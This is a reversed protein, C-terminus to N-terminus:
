LVLTGGTAAHPPPPLTKIKLAKLVRQAQHSGQTVMRKREGDGLDVEVVRVTRLAELAARASLDLGAAKLKKELARELLFALYAVFIHAEVREKSRHFIPRLNLIDKLHRFAREVESLDKYAQVAEVPTLSHDDTRILYKGELALERKLNTPHEFYRFSGAALEWAYYRHGHNRALIRAAAAGIKAPVRLKKRAVREQLKFLAERTREMSIKRRAEEFAKREESRVVFIRVGAEGSPVEQVETRLPVARERATIGAPCEQWPGTAAEIWRYVPESRRRNLGLLHRHGLAELAQLNEVSVMGRDGVLIVRRLGFRRELERTVEDVTGADRRNGAFTHQAIPWGNVMVVGVLLQRNRPKGDRSHGFAALGEPGAGEFYTSTLDYFVLDAKLCFLDKLRSFLEEELARKCALLQDLASYWTELQGHRVRVRPRLSERREEESLWDPRWHRGQADCAFTSELWEALGHESKPRDLRNAALVLARESLPARKKARAGHRRLTGSIGLEDWLHRAVLFVGWDWAQACGRPESAEQADSRAAPKGSLLSFLREAHPALLDKRGIHCVVRQKVRGGERYGEVLRLYEYVQGDPGHNKVSRIFM